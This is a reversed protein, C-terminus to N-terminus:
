CEGASLVLVEMKAHFYIQTMREVPLKSERNNARDHLTATTIERFFFMRSAVVHQIYRKWYRMEEKNTVDMRMGGLNVNVINQFHCFKFFGEVM